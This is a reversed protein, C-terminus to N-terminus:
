LNGSMYVMDAQFLKRFQARVNATFQILKEFISDFPSKIVQCILAKRSQSKAAKRSYFYHM